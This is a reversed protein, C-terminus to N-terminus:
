RIVESVDVIEDKETLESAKVYGRTTLIPHEATCKIERGDEMTIKYIQAKQQTMRCDRYPKLEAKKTETNFSWVRGCTGVMDKIPIQGNETDVLTDGTLCHDNVKIPKDVSENADWVYGQVEKLWNKCGPAIKIKGTQMASATDRIGDLVANDAPTVKYWQKKRLLTIFSAASPDIITEMKEFYSGSRNMRGTMIPEILKDLAVAYEEDTKQVGTDRGSYYYEDIRYWVDEYKGWLGASFANMTGYDISLCYQTPKIGEPPEAIADQYMPYILGEALTWEGDIYRGYYVTGAYEKCLNEVFEKPLYPNDFITYHQVYSDIDERDIFQKLWHGPSEPNCAGDFCSYPKDLRSQLMAFVEQNWKAIEDGYCYKISMGQIKAVQNIKEAGLCYVDEGCIRAINRGNITGVVRDTYMERMPQLVNREITERSVGLILNLGSKGHVSRLRYPIMVNVDVYSKGSRVAGVKLCWRHTANQIYENQKKSLTILLEM